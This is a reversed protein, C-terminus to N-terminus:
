AGRKEPRLADYLWARARRWERGVTESSVGLQVATEELSMGSFFRLEVVAAKRADLAELRTLADDLAVLDPGEATLAMGLKEIEELTVKQVQGGRKARNRKRAHDVLIRRMLHAAFAFFHGRSPWNFGQGALRLYAENVIATAQLTHRGGEQRLQRAAMRRLEDYVLPLVREAAERDGTGWQQLLETIGHSGSKGAM